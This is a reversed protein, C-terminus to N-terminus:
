YHPPLEDRLSKFGGPEEAAQHSLAQVTQILGDIQRQQRVVVANLQECLDELYTLKLEINVLRGDDPPDQQVPSMAHLGCSPHTKLGGNDATMGSHM